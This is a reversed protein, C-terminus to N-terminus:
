DGVLCKVREWPFVLFKLSSFFKSFNPFVFVSFKTAPFVGVSIFIDAPVQLRCDSNAGPNTIDCLLDLLLFSQLGVPVQIFCFYLFSSVSM